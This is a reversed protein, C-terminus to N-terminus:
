DFELSRVIRLARDADACGRDVVSVTLQRPGPARPQEPFHAGALHGGQEDLRCSIARAPRGGITEETAQYAPRDRYGTLPDAFPGADVTVELDVGGLVQAPSDVGRAALPTLDVPSRLRLGVDALRIEKWDASMWDPQLHREHGSRWEM